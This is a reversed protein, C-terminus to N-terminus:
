RKFKKLMNQKIKSNANYEIINQKIQSNVNYEIINQKIVDNTKITDIYLLFDKPFINNFNLNVSISFDELHFMIFNIYNKRICNIGTKGIYYIPGGVFYISKLDTNINKLIGRNFEGKSQLYYDPLYSMVEATKGCFDINILEDHNILNIIKTCLRVNCNIKFIGKIMPFKQCIFTFGTFSKITLNVYKEDCKIKLINDIQECQNNIANDAILYFIRVNHLESLIDKNNTEFNSYDNYTALVLLIYGDFNEDKEINNNKFWTLYPNIMNVGNLYINEFYKNQVNPWYINEPNNNLFGGWYSLTSNSCIGGCKTNSMIYITELENLNDIILFRDRYLELEPYYIFIEDITDSVVIFKIASNKKILENICYVYYNNLPIFVYHKDTTITGDRNTVYKVKDGLRIHLFACNDLDYKYKNPKIYSINLMNYILEKYKTPVYRSLDQLYSNKFITNNNEYQLYNYDNIYNYHLEVITKYDNTNDVTNFYSFINDLYNIDSHVSTLTYEKSVTFNKYIKRSLFYTNIVQFIQNGVGGMLQVSTNNLLPLTHKVYKKKIQNNILNSELIYYKLLQNNMILEYYSGILKFPKYNIDIIKNFDNTDGLWNNTYLYDSFEYYIIRSNKLFSFCGNESNIFNDQKWFGCIPFYVTKYTNSLLVSTLSFTSCSMVIVESQRLYNFDDLCNTSIFNYDIFYKQLEQIYPDNLDETIFVVDDRSYRDLIQIYYSIPLIPQYKLTPYGCQDGCGIHVAVKYKKPNSISDLVIITEDIIDKDLINLTNQFYGKIYNHSDSKLEEFNELNHIVQKVSNHPLSISLIDCYNLPLFTNDIYILGSQFYYNKYKALNRLYLYELLINGLRGTYKISIIGSKSNESKKLIKNETINCSFQLNFHEVTLQNYNNIINLFPDNMRFSFSNFGIINDNIYIGNCDFRQEIDNLLSLDTYNSTFIIIDNNEIKDLNKYCIYFIFREIINTQDFCVNNLFYMFDTENIIVNKGLNDFNGDITTSYIFFVTKM